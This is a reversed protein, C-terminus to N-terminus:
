QDTPKIWEPIPKTFSTDKANSNPASRSTHYYQVSDTSYVTIPDGSLERARDSDIGEAYSSREQFGEPGRFSEHATSKWEVAGPTGQGYHTAQQRLVADMAAERVGKTSQNSPTESGYSQNSTEFKYQVAKDTLLYNTDRADPRTGNRTYRDGEKWGAINAEQGANSWAREEVWNGVLTSSSKAPDTNEIHNYRNYFSKDM